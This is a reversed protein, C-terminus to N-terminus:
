PPSLTVSAHLQKKLAQLFATVRAPLHKSTPLLAWIALMQPQADELTIMLLKGSRLEERVDWLTLQAIGCGAVCLSRVGEVSSASFRGEVSLSSIQGDVIFGWQLVGTLRLCNHQQLDTLRTPCGTATLYAPTACLM